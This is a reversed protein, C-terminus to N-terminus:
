EDLTLSVLRPPYDQVIEDSTGNCYRCLVEVRIDTIAAIEVSYDKECTEVLFAVNEPQYDSPQLEFNEVVSRLADGTVPSSRDICFVTGTKWRKMWGFTSSEYDARGVRRLRHSAELSCGLEGFDSAIVILTDDGPLANLDILVCTQCNARRICIPPLDPVPTKLEPCAAAPVPAKVYPAEPAPSVAAPVPEKVGPPEPVPQKMHCVPCTIMKRFFLLSKGYAFSRGCFSCTMESKSLRM